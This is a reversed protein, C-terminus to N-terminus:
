SPNSLIDPDTRGCNELYRTKDVADVFFRDDYYSYGVNKLYEIEDGYRTAFFMLFGGGTAKETFYNKSEYRELEVIQFDSFIERIEPENGLEVTMIVREFDRALAEMQQIDGISGVAIALNNAKAQIEFPYEARIFRINGNFESFLNTYYDFDVPTIVEREEWAGEPSIEM